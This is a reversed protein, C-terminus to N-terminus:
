TPPNESPLRYTIPPTRTLPVVAPGDRAHPQTIGRRTVGTVAAGMLLGIQRRAIVDPPQPDIKRDM